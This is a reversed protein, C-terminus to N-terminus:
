VQYEVASMILRIIAYKLELAARPDKLKVLWAARLANTRPELYTICDVVNM